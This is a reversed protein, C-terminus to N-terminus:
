FPENDDAPREVEEETGPVIGTIPPIDTPAPLYAVVGDLILQVGRNKFASRCFVPYFEVNLTANRIAQKIEDNSIEEGELYKLRVDEDAEAVAEMTEKRIEEAKEKNASTSERTEAKTGMDDVYFDEEMEVLDIIGEIEDEAGIPLQVPHAKARLREKL